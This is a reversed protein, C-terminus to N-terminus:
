AIGAEALRSDCWSALARFQAMTRSGSEAFSHDTTLFVTAVKVLRDDDWVRCLEVAELFDLNPKSVYRAGKRHQQYLEAYRECFRGAREALDDSADAPRFARVNTQRSDASGSRSESQSEFSPSQNSGTSLSPNLSPNATPKGSQPPRGGRRGNEAQKRRFARQKKRERELRPHILRSADTGAPRFCPALAPWMKRLAHEPSGLVRSMLAVDAPITGEAWCLCILTIYAGREQLSMLRVHEDSLFDKPYFQFAPARGSISDTDAMDDRAGVADTTLATSPTAM